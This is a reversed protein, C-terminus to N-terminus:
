KIQITTYIDFNILNNIIIGEEEREKTNNKYNRTNNIRYSKNSYSEGPKAHVCCCEVYIIRCLLWSPWGFAALGKIITNLFIVPRSNFSSLLKSWGM